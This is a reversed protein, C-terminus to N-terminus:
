SVHVRTYTNQNWVYLNSIFVEDRPTYVLYFLAINRSIYICQVYQSEDSNYHTGIVSIVFSFTQELSFLIIRKPWICSIIGLILSRRIHASSKIYMVTCFHEHDIYNIYCSSLSLFRCCFLLGLSGRTYVFIMKAPNWQIYLHLVVWTSSSTSSSSCGEQKLCGARLTLM